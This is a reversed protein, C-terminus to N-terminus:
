VGYFDYFDRVPAEVGLAQLPFCRELGDMGRQRALGELFPRAASERVAGRRDLFQGWLPMRQFRDRLVHASAVYSPPFLRRYADLNYLWSAGIVRVTDPVTRKVQGFLARLEATRENRRGSALPSGGDTEANRFHLRIRDGTIAYGFCGFTAAVPPSADLHAHRLYFGYTWESADRAHELGHVYEAWARHAEDPQRGLGFRVYLNTYDLVARAYPLGSLASVTRAFELQLEFFRRGYVVSSM